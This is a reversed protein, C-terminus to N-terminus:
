LAGYGTLVWASGNYHVDVYAATASPITKLGGVDLTFSGLGTRVIRFKDGNQAGTTSLTVTRNGTLTTAFRQIMSDTGVAITPSTDGRDSSVLELERVKTTAAM